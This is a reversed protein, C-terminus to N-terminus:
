ARTLFLEKKLPPIVGLEVAKDFMQQIAQRGESGLNVSYANVYLEIHKYMVSEEMEQAHSRIYDLGSKPNAFAFEVSKRILRNVKHKIEQDLSRKIVIGGLPIPCGTEREWYDGLDVVKHLGKEQYTFRNEHIILGVDIQETLLSSEIDSFVMEQKNQLRPFALGLLFNATTYKGPIGVRLGDMGATDGSSLSARLQAALKESKTILLPGVGFGLASGADLLEYDSAAYAFAHYSLKTIDLKGGFANQNLTEVDQYDVSFDLGETDIKHHILADFIFTDNPCPSFGLTLKM